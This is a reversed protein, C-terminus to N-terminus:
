QRPALCWKVGGRCAIYLFVWCYLVALEGKNIAPLLNPGLQVKWHFQVYAVAMMGSCLFAAIRTQFGLMVM